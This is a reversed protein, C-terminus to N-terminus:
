NKKYVEFIASFDKRGLNLKLGTSYIDRTSRILKMEDM